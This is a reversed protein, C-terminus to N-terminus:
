CKKLSSKSSTSEMYFCRECSWYECVIFFAEALCLYSSVEPLPLTCGHFYRLLTRCLQSHHSREELFNGQLAPTTGKNLVTISAEALLYPLQKSGRRKNTKSNIQDRAKWKPTAPNGVIGKRSASEWESLQPSSVAPM